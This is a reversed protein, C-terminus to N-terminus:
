SFLELITIGGIILVIGIIQLPTLTEKFYFVGILTIGVISLGAWIANSAVMSELRFLQIMTYLMGLFCLAAGSLYLLEDNIIYKKGLAVGLWDLSITTAMLLWFKM